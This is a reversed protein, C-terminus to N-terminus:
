GSSRCIRITLWQAKLRCVPESMRILRATFMGNDAQVIAIDGSGTVRRVRGEIGSTNSQRDDRGDLLRKSTLSQIDLRNTLASRPRIGVVSRSGFRLAAEPAHKRFM